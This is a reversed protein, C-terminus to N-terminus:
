KLIYCIFYFTVKPSLGFGLTLLIDMRLFGYVANLPVRLFFKQILSEQANSTSGLGRVLLNDGIGNTKLGYSLNEM